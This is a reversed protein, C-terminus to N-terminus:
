LDTFITDILTATEKKMEPLNHIYTNYTFTVSSHGLRESVTKINTGNRILITAHSHRLGHITIQPFDKHKSVNKTFDMSLTRPKCMSGDRSLIVFDTKNKRHVDSTNAQSSKYERLLKSMGPSISIYRRSTKTKLKDTLLCTKNIKDQIVQETIYITNNDLDVNQWRLGCLEAVRIGTLGVIVSPIYLYKGKINSLFYNLQTQDWVDLKSGEDKLKEIKTPIINVLKLKMAYKFCSTIIEIIKKCTGPKLGTDILYYYFNQVISPEIKELSMNGLYPIIYKEIGTKYRSVTNIGLSRSVHNKYWEMIFDKLLTKSTAINFGNSVDVSLQSAYLEAEKKTKFGGKFKRLQKGTLPDRGLFVGVEWGSSKKRFTAM